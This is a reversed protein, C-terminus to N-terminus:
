FPVRKLWKGRPLQVNNFSLSLTRMFVSDFRVPSDAQWLSPIQKEKSFPLDCTDSFSLNWGVKPSAVGDRVNERHRIMLRHWLYQIIDYNVCIM